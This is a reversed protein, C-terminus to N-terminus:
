RCGETPLQTRPVSLRVWEHDRGPSHSRGATSIPADDPCRLGGLFGEVHPARRHGRDASRIPSLPSRPLVIARHCARDVDLLVSLTDRIGHRRFPTAADSARLTTTGRFQHVPAQQFGVIGADAGVFQRRDHRTAGRPHLVTQPTCPSSCPLRQGLSVHCQVLDSRAQADARTTHCPKARGPLQRHLPDRPPPHCRLGIDDPQLPFFRGRTSYRRRRTRRSAAWPSCSGCSLVEWWSSPASSRPPRSRPPRNQHHGVSSDDLDPPPSEGPAPAADRRSCRRGM